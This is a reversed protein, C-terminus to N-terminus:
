TPDNQVGSTLPFLQVNLSYVETKEGEQMLNAINRRFEIILKKAAALNGPNTPFTISSFDRQDIAVSAMKEAALQLKQKHSARIMESPIGTATAVHVGTPKWLNEVVAILGFEKLQGLANEARAEDIGLRRSIRTVDMDFQTTEMMSLIAFPVWDLILSLDKDALLVDVREQTRKVRLNEVIAGLERVQNEDLKLAKRIRGLVKSTPINDSNLITTLRGSSIGLDLAFARRSYHKKERVREEYFPMLFDKLSQSDKKDKAMSM